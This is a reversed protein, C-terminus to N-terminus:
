LGFRDFLGVLEEVKQRKARADGSRIAESVCTEVHQKLVTSGVKGLAAQVAAVQNLVDVCYRDDEVMREIAAVQGAVRRLRARVQRKTERDMM